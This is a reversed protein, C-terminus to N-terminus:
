LARSLTRSFGCSLFVDAVAEFLADSVGGEDSYFTEGVGGAALDESFCFDFGWGM